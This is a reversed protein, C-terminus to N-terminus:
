PEIPLWINLSGQYVAVGRVRSLVSLGATYQHLPMPWTTAHKPLNLPEFCRHITHLIAASFTKASGNFYQYYYTWFPLLTQLWDFRNKKTKTSILGWATCSLMQVSTIKTGPRSTTYWLLELSGVRLVVISHTSIFFFYFILFIVNKVM